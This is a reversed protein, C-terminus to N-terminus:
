IHAIDLCSTNEHTKLTSVGPCDGGRKCSEIVRVENPSLPDGACSFANSLFNARSARPDAHSTPLKPHLRPHDLVISLSGHAPRRLHAVLPTIAPPTTGWGSARDGPAERWVSRCLRTPGKPISFFVCVNDTSFVSMDFRHFMSFLPVM